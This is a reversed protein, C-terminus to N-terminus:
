FFFHLGQSTKFSLFVGIDFDSSTQQLSPILSPMSCEFSNHKKTEIIPKSEEHDSSFNLDHPFQNTLDM